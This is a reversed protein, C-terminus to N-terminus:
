FRGLGEYTKLYITQYGSTLLIKKLSNPSFVVKHDEVMWWSWQRCIKAMLSKYNPTQIVLFGNDTLLQKTKKLINLPNKFHELIDIMFILNFKKQAKALFKQYTIKHNIFNIKEKNLYHLKLYPEVTELQFNGLKYLISAFLGFGAGVDLMKGQNTFSLIIKALKLFRKKLKKEQTQYDTFSYLDIKSKINKDLIALQCKLCEKINVEDIKKITELKKNKCIFCKM